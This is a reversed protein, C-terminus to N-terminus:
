GRKEGQRRERREALRKPDVGGISAFRELADRTERALPSPADITAVKGPQKAGPPTPLEPIPKVAVPAPAAEGRKSFQAPDGWTSKYLNVIYEPRFANWGDGYHESKENYLHFYLAVKQKNWMDPDIGLANRADEDAKHAATRVENQWREKATEQKFANVKEDAIRSAREENIELLLKQAGLPDAFWLENVKSYRPDEDPQVPSREALVKRAATEAERERRLTELERQAEAREREAKQKATEAHKYSDYLVGVKKGRFFGHDLDEPLTADRWNVPQAAAAPEAVTPEAPTTEKAPETGADRSKFWADLNETPDVKVSGEQTTKEEAV